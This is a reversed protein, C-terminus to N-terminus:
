IEKFFFVLSVIIISFMTFVIGNFFLFDTTFITWVAIIWWVLLFCAYLCIIGVYEQVKRLWFLPRNQRLLSYTYLYAGEEKFIDLWSSRYKKKLLIFINKNTFIQKEPSSNKQFLSLLKNTNIGKTKNKWKEKEPVWFLIKLISIAEQFGIILWFFWPPFIFISLKKTIPLIKVYNKKKQELSAKNYVVKITKKIVEEISSISNILQVRKIDYILIDKNNIDSESVIKMLIELFKRLIDVETNSKTKVVEKEKKVTEPFIQLINKFIKDQEQPDTVDIPYLRLVVYQYDDRLIQYASFIDLADVRWEIRSKNEKLAEFVFRPVKNKEEELEDATLVIFGEISLNNKVKELSEWEMIFSLKKNNKISHIKYSPM